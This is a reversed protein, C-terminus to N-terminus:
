DMSSLYLASPRIEFLDPRRCIQAVGGGIGGRRWNQRHNKRKYGSWDPFYQHQLL